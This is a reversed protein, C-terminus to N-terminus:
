MGRYQSVAILGYVCVKNHFYWVSYATKHIIRRDSAPQIVVLQHDFRAGHSM